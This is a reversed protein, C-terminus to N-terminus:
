NLSTKNLQICNKECVGLIEQIDKVTLVKKEM